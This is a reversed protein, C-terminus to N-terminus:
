DFNVKRGSKKTKEDNHSKLKNDEEEDNIIIEQM